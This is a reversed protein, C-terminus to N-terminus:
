SLPARLTPTPQTLQSVVERVDCAAGRNYPLKALLLAMGCTNTLASFVLGAGVLGAVVVLAPVFLSAVVSLVVLSGAVGRVQRELSWRGRGRDVPGGTLTWQGLGGELVRVNTLGAAALMEGAQSARGGSQCILVVQQSLARFEDRHESLTELPVHYSGPIHAADFEASTRVDILHVTADDSLLARLEVPSIVNSMPPTPEERLDRSSSGVTPTAATM